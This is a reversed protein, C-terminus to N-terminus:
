RDKKSTKKKINWKKKKKTKKGDERKITSPHCLQLWLLPFHKIVCMERVVDVDDDDDDVDNYNSICVYTCYNSAKAFWRFLRGVFHGM